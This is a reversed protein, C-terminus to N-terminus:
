LNWRHNHSATLKTTSNGFTVLEMNEPQYIYTVKCWKTTNTNKDYGLVKDGLSIENHSKWGDPTLARHSIPVCNHIIKEVKPDKLLWWPTVPSVEPFLPFYFSVDPTPAIAVGVVIKEKTSITETDYAIIAPSNDVLYHQYMHPFPPESGCYYFNQSSDYAFYRDLSM